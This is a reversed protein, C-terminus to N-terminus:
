IAGIDDLARLSDEQTLDRKVNLEADLSDYWKELERNAVIQKQTDDLARSDAREMLEVIFAGAGTDIVQSRTGPGTDDAFLFDEIKEDPFGGRPRWDLEGGNEASTTDQSVDRAVAAFDEGADLREQVQKGAGADAVVIWRARVQAEEDPAFFTFYNRVKAELLEARLKQRFEGRRLGSAEVQRSYEAAFARPDTNTALNGLEKIKNDVDEDTVTVDGFNLTDAAEILKAENELQDLVFQPLAQLYQPQSFITNEQLTLKMRRELHRLNYKTEGVQLVTKGGPKIETQYWGFAIIGAVILLVAAVGGILLLRNWQEPDTRHATRRRGSTAKAKAM